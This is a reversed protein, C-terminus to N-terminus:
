FRCRKLYKLFVSKCMCRGKKKREKSSDLRLKILVLWVYVGLLLLLLLVIVYCYYSLCVWSVSLAIYAIHQMHHYVLRGLLIRCYGSQDRGM